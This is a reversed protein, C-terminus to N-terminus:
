TQASTDESWVEESPAWRSPTPSVASQFCPECLWAAGVGRLGNRACDFEPNCAPRGQPIETEEIGHIESFAAPARPGPSSDRVFPAYKEPASRPGAPALYQMAMARAPAASELARFIAMSHATRSARSM